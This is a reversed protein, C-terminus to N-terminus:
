RDGILLIDYGQGDSQCTALDGLDAQRNIRAIQEHEAMDIAHRDDPRGAAGTRGLFVAEVPHQVPDEGAMWEIPGLHCAPAHTAEQHLDRATRQRAKGCGCVGMFVLNPHAM